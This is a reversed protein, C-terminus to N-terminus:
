ASKQTSWMINAIKPLCMRQEDSLFTSGILNGVASTLNIFKEIAKNDLVGFNIKDGNHYINLFFGYGTDTIEFMLQNGMM